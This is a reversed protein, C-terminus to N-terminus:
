LPTMQGCGQGGSQPYRGRLSSIRAVVIMDELCHRPPPPDEDPALTLKLEVGCISCRYRLNVQADGGTAAAPGLPRTLSRLMAIGTKWVVYAVVLGAAIWLVTAM